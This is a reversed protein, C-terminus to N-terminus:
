KAITIKRREVTGNSEMEFIYIGNSLKETEITFANTGQNATAETNILQQGELNYIHINFTADMSNIFEVTFSNQAPNPYLSLNTISEITANANSEITAGNAYVPSHANGVITVTYDEVEGEAITACSNNPVSGYQMQVRMRTAGNLAATPVTFTKSLAASSSGTAVKEGADTFVGNHNYDIWIAWNETYSSGTFGPTLTITNSTGGTLNTNLSTYNGYGNNNGSTNAITGLVVKNIYEYATSNAKSSCYTVTCGTTTFTSTTSYASSGASCLSLVHYQYASCASLGSVVSSTTTIGSVTTWTSASSLKYQLTYGTAGSVAAWSLTASTATISASVLGTPVTCTIASTTFTSSATFASSGSACVTQVQWEYNTSATLGSLNFSTTASTGTTWTTAGVVRYQVNYSTAGSAAAWGLTASTTTITSTAMGTPANCTAVASTAFTTSATFASSGSACVTQVQWEYNTSATLGSLNFSTTASTGTTWTTAGVVRYQVNYSTAGSAAAWGLTATTTTITSTAMGAPANCTATTSSAAVNAITTGWNNGTGAFESFNWFSNNTPDVAMGTYDGYRNRGSGFDKFYGALGTKYSYINETTNVADAAAHFVYSASAFTTSSSQCMGLLFDGASNVNISPYFYFMKGTADEIRAFQQVTPAAPNIQWWDVASHTPSTAPLFVSHCFWLSGNIYVANGVRTDGNDLTNSNGSQKAQVQTESWPQTVGITAGTTYVPASATGTVTSLQMYGSGGSSGNYDQVMYEVNQSVDYTQAPAITFANNDTFTNVTGLTGSYLSARNMVYIKGVATTNSTFDNATVVVWNNNYGLLPYDIFDSTTGVADFSYVYWSGTPDNTQSVAVFLGGHGNSVNGDICVIYRGNNADYVIHPDFYGSGGSASFFTTISVTSILSGTKGFIKFEQNNTEMVHNPGAAGRIDPPILSGNDQTGNFSITPAPSNVLARSQHSPHPITFTVAGPGVPKPTFVFDADKDEGQEIARQVLPLPHQLEYTARDLFNVTHVTSIPIPMPAQQAQAIGSIALITALVAVSHITKKISM